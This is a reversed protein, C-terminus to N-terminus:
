GPRPRSSCTAPGATRFRGASAPAPSTTSGEQGDQRGEPRRHRRAHERARPVRRHGLRRAGRRRLPRLRRVPWASSANTIYKKQGDIVWHDGVRRARTRLGAPSSGAGPEVLAAVAVAVAAVIECSAIRTPGDKKQADTGFGVLVQGAIGNNTGSMSRQSLATSGFEQALEVDQILDLGIGGWESPSAYGFLGM